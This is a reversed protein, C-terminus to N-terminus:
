IERKIEKGPGMAVPKTAASSEKELTKPKKPINQYKNKEVVDDEMSDNTADDSPLGPGAAPHVLDAKQDTSFDEDDSAEAARKRKKQTRANKDPSGQSPVGQTGVITGNKIARSLRTFRMRAAPAKLNTADGM